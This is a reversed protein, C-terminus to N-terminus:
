VYIAARRGGEVVEPPDPICEANGNAVRAATWAAIAADLVDDAGVRAGSLGLDGTLDIGGSALLQSRMQFGAWTKKSDPLPAGYLKAFSVEPHVEVVRLPTTPLWRDVELIKPALNFSQKSLGKGLLERNIANADAYTEAELAQRPPKPFVSSRRQGLVARALDDADRSNTLPLGVPIDIAVVSVSGVVAVLEAINNACFAVVSNDAQLRIGVWGGPCGDVGLV